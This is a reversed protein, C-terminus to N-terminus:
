ALTGALPLHDSNLMITIRVNLYILTLKNDNDNNHKTKKKFINIRDM